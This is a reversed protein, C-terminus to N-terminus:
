IFLNVHNGELWVRYPVTVKLGLEKALGKILTRTSIFPVVSDQDGSDCKM